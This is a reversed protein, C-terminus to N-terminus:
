REGSLPDQFCPSRVNTPRGDFCVGFVAGLFGTFIPRKELPLSYAVVNLSGAFVGGSGVGALARGVIFTVSNQAKGSILSGLMFIGM